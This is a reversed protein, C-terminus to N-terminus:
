GRDVDDRVGVLLENESQTNFVYYEKLSRPILICMEEPWM